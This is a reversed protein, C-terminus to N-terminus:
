PLHDIVSTTNRKHAYTMTSLKERLELHAERKNIETNTNAEIHEFADTLTINLPLGQHTYMLHLCGPFKGELLTIGANQWHTSAQFLQLKKKYQQRQFNSADKTVEIPRTPMDPQNAKNRGLLKRYGKITESLWAFGGNISACPIQALAAGM